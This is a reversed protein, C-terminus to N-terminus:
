RTREDLIADLCEKLAAIKTSRLGLEDAESYVKVQKKAKVTSAALWDRVDHNNGQIGAFDGWAEYTTKKGASVKLIAVSRYIEEVVTHPFDAQAEPMPEFRFKVIRPHAAVYDRWAPRTEPHGSVKLDELKPLSPLQDPRFPLAHGVWLERLTPSWSALVELFEESIEVSSSHVRELPFGQLHKFGLALGCHLFLHRVRQGHGLMALDLFPSAAHWLTIEEVNTLSLITKLCAQSLSHLYLERVPIKGEGAIPVSTGCLVMIIKDLKGLEALRGWGTVDPVRDILLSDVGSDLEATSLDLHPQRRFIGSNM